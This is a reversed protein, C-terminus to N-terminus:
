PAPAAPIVVGRAEDMLVRGDAPLVFGDIYLLWLNWWFRVLYDRSSSYRESLEADDFADFSGLIGGCFITLLRQDNTDLPGTYLNESSYIGLPVEVKPLRVGGIVHGDADRAWDYANDPISGTTEIFFDGPPLVDNIIWQGLRHQVAGLAVGTRARNLPLDCGTSGDGGVGFQYRSVHGGEVELHYDVHTAGAVEYTRLNPKESMTQRARASKIDSETTFRISKAAAREKNRADDIPRLGGTGDLTRANAGGAAVIFGNVLEEGSGELNQPYFSNGYTNVFGASQSYGVMIVAQIDYGAMPNSPAATGRLAAAAQTLIDWTLARSPISLNAYRSNDRPQSGAPAPSADTGWIDRMFTASTDSYTVGVWAAGDDIITRWTLDWHPAGDYNATANLVEFIVVGNFDAPDAPHRVLMRSTYPNGTTAPEVMPSESANDAYQYTNALGSIQYELEVYGYDAVNRHWALFPVDRDAEGTGTDVPLLQTTPPSIEAVAIASLLLGAALQSAVRLLGLCNPSITNRQPFGANVTPNKRFM